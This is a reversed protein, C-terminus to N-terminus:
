LTRVFVDLGTEARVARAAQRAERESLFVGAIVRHLRDDGALVRAIPNIAPHDGAFFFGTTVSDAADARARVAEARAASRAAILQVAWVRAPSRPAPRAAPGLISLARVLAGDDPFDIAVLVANRDSLPTVDAHGNEVEIALGAPLAADIRALRDAHAHIVAPSWEPPCYDANPMRTTISVRENSATQGCWCADARRALSSFVVAFALACAVRV